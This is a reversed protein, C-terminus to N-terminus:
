YQPLLKLRKLVVIGQVMIFSGKVGKLLGQFGQKFARLSFGASLISLAQFSDDDRLTQLIINGTAQEPVGM